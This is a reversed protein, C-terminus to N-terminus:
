TKVCGPQSEAYCSRIAQPLYYVSVAVCADTVAAKWQRGIKAPETRPDNALERTIEGAAFAAAQRGGIGHGDFVGAGFCSVMMLAVAKDNLKGKFKGQPAHEQATRPWDGAKLGGRSNWPCRMCRCRLRTRAVIALIQLNWRACPVEQRCRALRLFCCVANKPCKMPMATVAWVLACPAGDRDIRLNSPRPTLPPLKFGGRGHRGTGIHLPKLCSRSGSTASRGGFRCM